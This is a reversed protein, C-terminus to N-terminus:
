NGGVRGLIRDLENLERSPFIPARKALNYYVEPDYREVSLGLHETTLLGMSFLVGYVAVYAQTEASLVSTRANLLEQEANLVDLTTRAGLRAEERTGDFALQAARVQQQSARVQARAVALQAWSSGVADSVVRGQQALGARSAQLQAVARRSVSALQGGSLLPQTMGLTLDATENFSGAGVRGSAAYRGSLNIKPGRNQEAALTQFENAKVQNQLQLISPHGRLAISRAAEVDGPLKPLAPPAQLARAERGIALKYAEKSIEVQGRAAALASQAAALRAQAISVDTRTVEGVEFRDNTARLEQTLLRLNNERLGVVQIDQRLTLYADVASLLVRQEVLILAQRAALVGFKAAEILSTQRGSSYLTWDMQLGLTSSLSDFPGSRGSNTMSNFFSLSPRLGSVAVAVDEDTAKLLFRQQELLNSHEYAYALADALSQAKALMPALALSGAIVLTQISKRLM